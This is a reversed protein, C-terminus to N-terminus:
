HASAMARDCVRQELWHHLRRLDRQPATKDHGGLLVFILPQNAVDVQSVLCRGAENIFGTKSLSIPLKSFRVLRNSNVFHTEGQKLAFDGEERTTFRAILPYLSATQVLRAIDSASAQNAPNLGSPDVFRTSFMGLERARANMEAVFAPIGGPYNRALAHAARNDSSMLMIQLLERRRLRTGVRLRSRSHKLTDIDDRTITLERELPLSADLLVIATMLKTISAIPRPTDADRALVPNGFRDVVLLSQADLRPPDQDFDAWLRAPPTEPVLKRGHCELVSADVASQALLLLTVGALAKAIIAMNRDKAVSEKDLAYWLLSKEM